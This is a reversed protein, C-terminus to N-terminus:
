HHLFYDSIDALIQNKSDLYETLSISQEFMCTDVISLLSKIQDALTIMIIGKKTLLGQRM